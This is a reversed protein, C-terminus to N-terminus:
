SRGADPFVTGVRDDTKTWWEGDDDTGFKGAPCTWTRRKAWAGRIEALHSFFLALAERHGASLGDSALVVSLIGAMVFPDEERDMLEWTEETLVLGKKEAFRGIVELLTRADWKRGAQEVQQRLLEINEEPYPITVTGADDKGDVTERPVPPTAAEQKRITALVEEAPIGTMAAIERAAEEPDFYSNTRYHCPMFEAPLFGCARVAPAPQPDFVGVTRAISLVREVEWRPGDHDLCATRVLGYLDGTGELVHFCEFVAGLTEPGNEKLRKKMWAELLPADRAALLRYIAAGKGRYEKDAKEVLELGGYGQSLVDFLREADLRIPKRVPKGTRKALWQRCHAWERADLNGDACARGPFLDEALAVLCWIFDHYPHTQTKEDFVTVADDCFLIDSLGQHGSEKRARARYPGLDRYVKFQEARKRTRADGTIAFFRGNADQNELNRTLVFRHYGAKEEATFRQLPLPFARAMQLARDYFAAWEGAEIEWPLIELGLYVGMGLVEMTVLATGVIM